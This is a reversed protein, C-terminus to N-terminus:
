FQKFFPTNAPEDILGKLEEDLKLLSISAGVMEM